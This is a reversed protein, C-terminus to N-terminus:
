YQNDHLKTKLKWNYLYSYDSEHSDVANMNIVAEKEEMTEDSEEDEKEEEDEEPLM